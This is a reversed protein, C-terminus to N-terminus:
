AMLPAKAMGQGLQDNRKRALVWTRVKYVLAVAFMTFIMSGRALASQFPNSNGISLAPLVFWIIAALILLALLGLLGGINRFIGLFIRM